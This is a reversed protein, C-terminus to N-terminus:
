PLAKKRTTKGVSLDMQSIKAQAEYFIYKEIIPTFVDHKIFKRYRNAGIYFPSKLITKITGANWIGNKQPAKVEQSNLLTCIETRTYDHSVYLDFIMRVIEIESTDGPEFTFIPITEEENQFANRVPVKRMGYPVKAQLFSDDFFLRRNNQKIYKSQYNGANMKPIKLPRGDLGNREFLDIAIFQRLSNLFQKEPVILEWSPLSPLGWGIILTLLNKLRNQPFRSIPLDPNIEIRTNGIDFRDLIAKLKQVLRRERDKPSGPAYLIAFTDTM